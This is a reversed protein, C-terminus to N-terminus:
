LTILGSLPHSFQGSVAMPRLNPSIKSLIALHTKNGNGLFDLKFRKGCLSSKQNALSQAFMTPFPFYASLYSDNEQKGM